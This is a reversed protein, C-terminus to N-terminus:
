IPVLYYFFEEGYPGPFGPLKWVRRGEVTTQYSDFNPITRKMFAFDEKTVVDIWIVPVDGVPISSLAHSGLQSPEVMVAADPFVDGPTFRGIEFSSPLEFSLEIEGVKARRRSAAPAAAILLLGLFVIFARRRM